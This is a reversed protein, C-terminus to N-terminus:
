LIGTLHWDGPTLVFEYALRRHYKAYEDPQQKGVRQQYKEVCETTVNKPASWLHEPVDVMADCDLNPEYNCKADDSDNKTLM